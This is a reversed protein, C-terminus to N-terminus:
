SGRRFNWPTAIPTAGYAILHLQGLLYHVDHAVRYYAKYARAWDLTQQLEEGHGRRGALADDVAALVLAGSPHGALEENWRNGRWSTLSHVAGAREDGHWRAPVRPTVHDRPPFRYGAAKRERRLRAYEADLRLHASREAELLDVAPLLFVPDRWVHGTRAQLYSWTAHFGIPQAQQICSGLAHLRYARSLGPDRVRRVERGFGVWGLSPANGRAGVRRRPEPWFQDVASSM